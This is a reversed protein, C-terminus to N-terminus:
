KDGSQRLDIDVNNELYDISVRIEFEENLSNEKGLKGEMELGGKGDRRM